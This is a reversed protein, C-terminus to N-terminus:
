ISIKIGIYSINDKSGKEIVFNIIRECFDRIDGLIKEIDVLYNENVVDWMGDSELIINKKVESFVRLM